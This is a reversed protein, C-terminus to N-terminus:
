DHPAPPTSSVSQCAAPLHLTSTLALVMNPGTSRSCPCSILRMVHGAGRERPSQCGRCNRKRSMPCDIVPVSASALSPLRVGNGWRGSRCTGHFIRFFQNGTPPPRDCGKEKVEKTREDKAETRARTSATIMIFDAYFM